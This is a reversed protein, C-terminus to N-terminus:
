QKSQRLKLYKMENWREGKQWNGKTIKKSEPKEEDKRKFLALRVAERKERKLKEELLSQKASEIRDEDIHVTVNLKRRTEM